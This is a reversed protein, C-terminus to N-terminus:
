ESGKAKSGPRRTFGCAMLNGKGPAGFLGSYTRNRCKLGCLLYQKYVKFGQTQELWGSYSEDFTGSGQLTSKVSSCGHAQPHGLNPPDMDLPPPIDQFGLSTQVDRM